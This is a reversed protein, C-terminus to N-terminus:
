KKEQAVYLWEIFKPLGVNIEAAGLGLDKAKLVKILFSPFRYGMIKGVGGTRGLAIVFSQEPRKPEASQFKFDNEPLPLKEAFAPLEKTLTEKLAGTQTRLSDLNGLSVSAVDGIVYHRPHGKIRMHRDCLVYGKADVFEAPLFQSNPTQGVTPIYLDFEAPASSGLVSLSYKGTPSAQEVSDVREFHLEIGFNKQLRSAIQESQPKPINPMVGSKGAYITVKKDPYAGAIECAVEVGTSGAGGIAITKADKIKQALERLQEKMAVHSHKPSPKFAPSSTVAGSAVIVTDYSIKETLNSESSEDDNVPVVQLTKTAPDLTKVWGQVFHLGDGGEQKYDEFYKLIDLQMNENNIVTEDVIARPSTVTMYFRRSPAVLTVKYKTDSSKTLDPLVRRLLVHATRVGAFNGGIIVIRHTDTTM